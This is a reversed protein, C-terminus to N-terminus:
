QKLFHPAEAWVSHGKQALLKSEFTGVLTRALYCHLNDVAKAAALTNM